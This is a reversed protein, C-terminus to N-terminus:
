SAPDKATDTLRHQPGRHSRNVTRPRPVPTEASILLGCQRVYLSRQETAEGVANLVEGHIWCMDSFALPPDVRHVAFWFAPVAIFQVSALKTIWVVDGPLPPESLPRLRPM